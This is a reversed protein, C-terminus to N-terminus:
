VQPDQEKPSGDENEKKVGNAPMDSNVVGLLTRFYCSFYTYFLPITVGRELFKPTPCTIL